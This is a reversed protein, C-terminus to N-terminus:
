RRHHHTRLSVHNITDGEDKRCQQDELVIPRALDRTPRAISSSSQDAAVCSRLLLEQRLLILATTLM